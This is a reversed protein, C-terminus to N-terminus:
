NNKLKEAPTHHKKKSEKKKPNAGTSHQATSQKQHEETAQQAM